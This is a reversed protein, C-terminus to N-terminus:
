TTNLPVKSLEKTQAGRELAQVTRQPLSMLSSAVQLWDLHIELVSRTDKNSTSNPVMHGLFLKEVHDQSGNKKQLSNVVSAKVLIQM